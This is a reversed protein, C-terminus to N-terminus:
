IFGLKSVNYERDLKPEELGHLVFATIFVFPGFSIDSIGFCGSKHDRYYFFVLSNM